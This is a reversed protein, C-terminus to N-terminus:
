IDPYGRHPAVIVFIVDEPWQVFTVLKFDCSWFTPKVDERNLHPFRPMSLSLLKGLTGHLEKAVSSPHVGRRRVHAREEHWDCQVIRKVVEENM